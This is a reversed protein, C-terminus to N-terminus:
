SRVKSQNSQASLKGKFESMGRRGDLRIRNTVSDRMKRFLEGILPKTLIDAIMDGTPLYKIQIEKTDIHQKVFFYRNKMYRVSGIDTSGREYLIIASKNDQYIITPDAQPYGVEDLWQRLELIKMLVADVGVIEAETSSRTVVKQKSSKVM